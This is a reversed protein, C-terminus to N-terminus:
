RTLELAVCQGKKITFGGNYRPCLTGTGTATYSYSGAPLIITIAKTNTVGCNISSYSFDTIVGKDNGSISIRLGASCLGISPNSVWITISGNNNAPNSGVASITGANEIFSEKNCGAFLIGILMASSVIRIIKNKM